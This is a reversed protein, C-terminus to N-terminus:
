RADSRIITYDCVSEKKRVFKQKPVKEPVKQKHKPEQKAVAAKMSKTRTAKKKVPSEPEIMADENGAENDGDVEDADKHEYNTSREKTHASHAITRVRKKVVKLPEFIMGAEVHYPIGVIDILTGTDEKKRQRRPMPAVPLPSDVTDMAQSQESKYIDSMDVDGLFFDDVPQEESQQEFSADKFDLTEHLATCNEQLFPASFTGCSAEESSSDRAPSCTVDGAPSGMTKSTMEKASYPIDNAPPPMPPIMAPCPISTIIRNSKEARLELRLRIVEEETQLKDLLEKNRRLETERVEREQMKLQLAENEKKMLVDEKPWEVGISTPPPPPLQTVAVAKIAASVEASVSAKGRIEGSQLKKSVPSRKIKTSRAFIEAAAAVPVPDKDQSMENAVAAFKTPVKVPCPSRSVNQSSAASATDDSIPHSPLPSKLNFKKWLGGTPVKQKDNELKPSPVPAAIPAAAKATPVAVADFDDAIEKLDEETVTWKSVAAAAPQPPPLPAGGVPCEGHQRTSDLAVPCEKDASEAPTELKTIEPKACGRHAPLSGSNRTPTDTTASRATTDQFTETAHEDAMETVLNDATVVRDQDPQSDNTPMPISSELPPPTRPLTKASRFPDFEAVRRNPGAYEHCNVKSQPRTTMKNNSLPPKFYKSEVKAGSPKPISQMTKASSPPVRIALHPTAIM